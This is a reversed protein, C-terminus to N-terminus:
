PSTVEYWPVDLGTTAFIGYWASQSEDDEFTEGPFVPIGEGVVAAGAGIWLVNTPDATEPNSITIYKRRNPAVIAAKILTSVIGVATKGSTSTSSGATAEAAVALEGNEIQAQNPTTGDELLVRGILANSSSLTVSTATFSGIEILGDIALPSM